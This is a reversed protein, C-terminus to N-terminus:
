GCNNYYSTIFFVPLRSTTLGAVNIIETSRPFTGRGTGM